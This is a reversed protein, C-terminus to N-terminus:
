WPTAALAATLGDLYSERVQGAALTHIVDVADAALLRDALAPSGDVVIWNPPTGDVHAHRLWTVADASPVSLDGPGSIVLDCTSRLRDRYDAPRGDTTIVSILPRGAIRRLLYPLHWAILENRLVGSSVEAGAARVRALGTGAVDPNPDRIGAVCRAFGCSAVLDACPPQRGWHACPELTTYLTAGRLVSRDRVADIACREAHRGGYRETSGTAILEGDKVIVAGVTPNPSAKGEAAMASLLARRMWYADDDIATEVAAGFLGGLGYGPLPTFGAGAPGPQRM